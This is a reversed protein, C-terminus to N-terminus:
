AGPAGSGPPGSPAPAQALPGLSRPGPAGPPSPAAGQANQAAGAISPAMQITAALAAQKRAMDRKAALDEPSSLWHAPVGNIDAIERGAKDIDILHLISQDGTQQAYNAFTELTRVAGSAWASKQTRSIPSDYVIKYEGKAEKLLGPLPPLLGQQMLLDLERDIMPGLYESQQRGITPALLIGKERARELVELATQQPNETLIQFLNVLFVDNILQREDDMQEKGISLNGTPLTQVLMRGDASVGGANVSGPELNFADVIGDDAALLVPDVTRHAQKLMAKKMENLTKIAPLADMAPSRGYAENPAQEYRSVSYPYSRYGGEGVLKRGTMSVYYEAFPMGKFDRREPDQDKRPMVWHLFFFQTEPYSAAKSQIAEPCKDGFQSVAQHAKLMFYRCVTDIMGQHNELLYIESLHTNRYRIGRKGALADIFMIGTGYAGLSKYQNQNQAAFNATPAYRERFLAQNAFDFWKQCSADKNIADDNSRLSHWFTDRPTLLSDLIAGFRQLAVMGTADFLEQNRKDGPMTLQSLSQFLWSHMPYIRQAIETWHSNWNGRAGYLSGWLRILESATEDDAASQKAKEAKADYTFSNLGSFIDAM